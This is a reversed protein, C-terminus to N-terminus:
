SAYRIKDPAYRSMASQNVTLSLQQALERFYADSEDIKLDHLLTARYSEFSTDAKSIDLKKFLYCVGEDEVMQPTGVAASRIANYLPTDDEIDSLKLVAALADPEQKTVSDKNEEGAQSLNYEHELENLAEGAQYRSFISNVLERQEAIENGEEDTGVSAFMVEIQTYQEAFAAKLEEDSVAREGGESYMATFLEERKLETRQYMAASERGIGNAELAEGSYGWIADVYGQVTAEDEASFTLGLEDYKQNVAFYEAALLNAEQQVRENNSVGDTKQKLFAKTEPAEYTEDDAHAESDADMMDMTATMVYNIYLGAPMRQGNYEYVWSTDGACGTLGSLIVGVILAFILPKNLRHKTM